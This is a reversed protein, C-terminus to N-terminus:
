IQLERGLFELIKEAEVGEGPNLAIWRFDEEGRWLLEIVRNTRDTSGRDVVALNSGPYRRCLKRLDRIIGEVRDEQNLVLLIFASGTRSVPLARIRGLMRRVLFFLAILVVSGAIWVLAATDM